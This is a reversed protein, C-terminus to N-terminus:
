LVSATIYLFEGPFQTGDAQHSSLQVPLYTEMQHVCRQMLKTLIWFRCRSVTLPVM